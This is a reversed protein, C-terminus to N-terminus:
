NWKTYKSAITLKLTQKPEPINSNPVLNKPKLTAHTGKRSHSHQIRPLADLSVCERWPKLQMRIITHRVPPPSASWCPVTRWLLERRKQMKWGQRVVMNRLALQYPRNGLFLRCDSIKREHFHYLVTSEMARGTERIQFQRNHHECRILHMKTAMHTAIRRTTSYSPTIQNKHQNLHHRFTGIEQTHLRRHIIRRWFSKILQRELTHLVVTTFSSKTNLWSVLLRSTLRKWHTAPFHADTRSESRPWSFDVRM